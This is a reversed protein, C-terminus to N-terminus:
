NWQNECGIWNNETIVYLYLFIEGIKWIQSFSHGIKKSTEEEIRIMMCHFPPIFLLEISFFRPGKLKTIPKIRHHNWHKKKDDVFSRGIEGNSDVQINRIFVIMKQWSIQFLGNSWEIGKIISIRICLNLQRTPTTRGKSSMMPSKKVLIDHSSQAMKTTWCGEITSIRLSMKRWDPWITRM